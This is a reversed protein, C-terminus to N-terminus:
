FLDKPAQVQVYDPMAQSIQLLGITIARFVESMRDDGAYSLLAEGGGMEHHLCEARGHEKANVLYGALSYLMASVATCAADSGTAHGSARLTWVNGRGPIDIRRLINIKTM